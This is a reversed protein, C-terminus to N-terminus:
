DDGGFDPTVDIDGGGYRSGSARIPASRRILENVQRTPRRNKWRSLISGQVRIGQRNISIRLQYAMARILGLTIGHYVEVRIGEVKDPDTSSDILTTSKVRHFKAINPAAAQARWRDIPLFRFTVLHPRKEEDIEFNVVPPDASPAVTGPM